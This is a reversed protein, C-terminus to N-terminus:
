LPNKGATGAKRPYKASIPATKEAIVINREGWEPEFKLIKAESNLLKLANAANELEETAGPGKYMLSKGGVKVFPLTWEAVIRLEAVARSLAVDFCERLSKDKGGDEARAHVTQAGLSLAANVEDM